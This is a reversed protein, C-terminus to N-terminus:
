HLRIDVNGGARIIDFETVLGRRLLQVNQRDLLPWPLLLWSSADDGVGRRHWVVTQM